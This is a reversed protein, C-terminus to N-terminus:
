VDDRFIMQKTVDMLIVSHAPSVVDGKEVGADTVAPEPGCVLRNNKVELLLEGSFFSGRKKM